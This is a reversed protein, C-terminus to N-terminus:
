FLMHLCGAKSAQLNPNFQPLQEEKAINKNKPLIYFM